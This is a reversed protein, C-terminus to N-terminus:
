RVRADAGSFRGSTLPFGKARLLARMEEICSAALAIQGERETGWYRYWCLLAVKGRESPATGEQGLGAYSTKDTLVASPKRSSRNRPRLAWARVDAHNAIAKLVPTLVAMSCYPLHPRTPTAECRVRLTSLLPADLLELVEFTFDGHMDWLHMIDLQALLVAEPIGVSGEDPERDQMSEEWNELILTVLLPTYALICRVFTRGPLGKYYSVHTLQLYSISTALNHHPFRRRPTTVWNDLRDITHYKLNIVKLNQQGTLCFTASGFRPPSPPQVTFEELDLGKGFDTVDSLAGARGGQWNLARLNDLGVNEMEELVMAVSEPAVCISVRPPRVLLVRPPGFLLERFREATWERDIVWHSPRVDGRLLHTWAPCVLLATTWEHLTWYPRSLPVLRLIATLVENPIHYITSSM